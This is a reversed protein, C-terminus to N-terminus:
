AEFENIIRELRHLENELEEKSSDLEQDSSVWDDYTDIRYQIFTIRIKLEEILKQREEDLVKKKNEERKQMLGKYYSDTRKTKLKRSHPMQNQASKSAILNAEDDTILSPNQIAKALLKRVCDETVNYGDSLDKITVPGYAYNKALKKIGANGEEKFFNTFSRKKAM